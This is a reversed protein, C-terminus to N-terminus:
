DVKPGSVPIFAINVEIWQFEFPESFKEAEIHQSPRLILDSKMLIGIRSNLPIEPIENQPMSVFISFFNIPICFYAHPSWRPVHLIWTHYYIIKVLRQRDIATTNVV